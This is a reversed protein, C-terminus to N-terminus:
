SDHSALASVFKGRATRITVTLFLQVSLQPDDVIGEPNTQTGHTVKPKSFSEHKPVDRAFIEDGGEEHINQAREQRSM